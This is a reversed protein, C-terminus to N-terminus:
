GGSVSLKREQMLREGNVDLRSREKEPVVDNHVIPTVRRSGSYRNRQTGCM